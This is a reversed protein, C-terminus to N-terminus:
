IEKKVVSVTLFLVRRSDGFAIFAYRIFYVLMTLGTSIFLQNVNWVIGGLTFSYNHLNPLLSYHILLLNLLTGGAAGLFTPGLRRRFCQPFADLTLAWITGIFYTMSLIIREDQFIFIYGLTLSTANVVVYWFEFNKLLLIFTDINM